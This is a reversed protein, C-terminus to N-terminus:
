FNDFSLLKPNKHARTHTHTHAPSHTPEQKPPASLDPNIHSSKRNGTMCSWIGVVPFMMAATLFNTSWRKDVHWRRLKCSTESITKHFTKFLNSYRRNLKPIQVAKLLTSRM